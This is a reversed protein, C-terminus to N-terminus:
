HNEKWEIVERIGFGLDIQPKFKILGMNPKMVRRKDGTPKSTDYEIKLRFYDAIEKAIWRVKVGKGTCIRIPKDPMVCMTKIMAEAVDRANIIDREQSGDGWVELPLKHLKSYKAKRILDSVLMLEKRAFNDFRGYVNAPRVICYQTNAGQTRMAKILNEATKKAWAPYFDTRPNQVAISSTYLFRRVNQVNAAIIMNTDFQLMPGMFDAPKEKTMRPNGKVGALHFVYDQGECLKLCTEFNRLDQGTTKDAKTIIAGREELEIVLEKGIMGDAGTVLVKKNRFM